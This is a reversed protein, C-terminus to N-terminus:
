LFIHHNIESYLCPNYYLEVKIQWLRSIRTYKCLIGSKVNKINMKADDKKTISQIKFSAWKWFRLISHFLNSNWFIFGCIGRIKGLFPRVSLRFHLFTAKKSWLVSQKGAWPAGGQGTEWFNKIATWVSIVAIKGHLIIM